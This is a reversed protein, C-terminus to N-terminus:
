LMLMGAIIAIFSRIATKRFEELHELFPMEEDNYSFRGKLSKLKELM